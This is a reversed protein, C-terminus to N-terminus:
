YKKAYLDRLRSVFLAVADTVGYRYNIVDSIMTAAYNNSEKWNKDYWGKAVLMSRAIVPDLSPTAAYARVTPVGGTIQALAPAYELGSFQVQTAFAANPNKASKLTAIAYMRMGTSFTNYGKTQPFTTMLFDGRPNRTKLKQYEGSYGIYMALKEAVFLDAPDNTQSQPWTFNTQGPDGFQTYFRTAATLPFVDGKEGIPENAQVSMYSEGAQNTARVVPTQGLQTVMAMLIDKSYSVSPTGLAIASELFQGGQRVTLTPVLAAVEDWTSPPNLVGHKSLLSRNYFLVMPEITVPLALAGNPVIFLSAGDVFLDRFAKEQTQFPYIRDAQSLIIQHPAIIADPGQGNAIAEVLTQEFSSEPIYTYRVAYTKVKPNYQQVFTTM